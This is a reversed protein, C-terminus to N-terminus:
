LRLNGSVHVLVFKFNGMAPEGPQQVTAQRCAHAPRQPRELDRAGVHAEREVQPVTLGGRCRRSIQQPKQIRQCMLEATGFRLLHENNM